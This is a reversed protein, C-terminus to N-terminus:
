TRAPVEIEHRMLTRVPDDADNLFQNALPDRSIAIAGFLITRPLVDLHEPGRM